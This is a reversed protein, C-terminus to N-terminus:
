SSAAGVPASVEARYEGVLTASAFAPPEETREAIAAGFARFADLDRLVTTAGRAVHLFSVGDEMRLTAYRVGDPHAAHLADFVARVLTANEDGRGPRVRYRVITFPDTM